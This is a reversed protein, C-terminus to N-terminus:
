VWQLLKALQEKGLVVTPSLRLQVEGSNNERTIKRLETTLVRMRDYTPLDFGQRRQLMRKQYGPPVPLEMEKGAAADGRRSIRGEEFQLWITRREKSIIESWSLSSEGLLCFWRSRRVLHAGHRIIGELVAAVAETTWVREEEEIEAEGPSDDNEAEAEAQALEELKQRRLQKGLNMLHNIFFEGRGKELLADYRQKFIEIGQQLCDLGPAYDPPIGLVTAASDHENSYTSQDALLAAVAAFAALSEKAPLPGLNHEEDANASCRRLDKSFFAIERERQRLAVNYPPSHKKIEDSELLAAELASGTESFDLRNAQTLMELTREGHRASKQFYSNVRQKLSTAKGIYLLDGNSRLMRYVGPRDPLGSRSQPKMPYVRGASKVAAQRQEQDLWHRMEALTRIGKSEALLSVVKGWTFATAAVHSASRRLEPVSHGFYGAAARLGKRPLQPLLNKAIQHTCIIEFPFTSKPAWTQQLQRLYPEEFRSFHIVTPCLKSKGAAAIEKAVRSLKKYAKKASLARDLDEESIGTIRKVQRPIETGAPLKILYSVIGDCLSAKTDKHCSARTKLWGIEMLDGKGPASSTAQCDFVLVELDSLLTEKKSNM